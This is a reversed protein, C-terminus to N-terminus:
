KWSESISVKRNMYKSERKMFELFDRFNSRERLSWSWACKQLTKGKFSHNCSHIWIFSHKVLLLFGLCLQEVSLQASPGQLRPSPPSLSLSLQVGPTLTKHSKVWSSLQNLWWGAKQWRTTDCSGALSRTLPLVHTHAQTRAHMCAWDHGDRQLGMSFGVLSRQGYFRGPLFVPTSQWKRRWSSREVGPILGM